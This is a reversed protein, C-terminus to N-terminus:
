FISPLFKNTLNDSWGNSAKISLLRFATFVLSPRSSCHAQCHPCNRHGCSHPVYTQHDHECCRAQMRPSLHTRCIKMANLAKRHSPLIWDAYQPLFNQEFQRIINSFLMMLLEGLGPFIWEYAPQYSDQYEQQYPRNLPYIKRHNFYKSPWERVDMHKAAGTSGQVIVSYKKYKM